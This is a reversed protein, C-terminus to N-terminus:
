IKTEKDTVDAMEVYNSCTLLILFVSVPVLEIDAMFSIILPKPILLMIENSNTM